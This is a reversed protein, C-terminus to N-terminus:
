GIYTVKTKTSNIKLGSFTAYLELTDLVTYLSDASGDIILYTDDAYEPYKTSTLSLTKLILTKIFLFALSRLM